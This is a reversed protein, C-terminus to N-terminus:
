RGLASQVSVRTSARGARCHCRSESASRGVVVAACGQTCGSRSPVCRHAHGVGAGLEPGHGGGRAKRSAATVSPLKQAGRTGTTATTATPRWHGRKGPQPPPLRHGAAPRVAGATPWRRPPLGSQCSRRCDRARSVPEGGGTGGRCGVDSPGVFPWSSSSWNPAHCVAATTGAGTTKRYIGREDLKQTTTKEIGCLRM